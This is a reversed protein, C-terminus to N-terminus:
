VVTPLHDAYKQLLVVREPNRGKIDPIEVYDVVELINDPTDPLDVLEGCWMMSGLSIEQDIWVTAVVSITDIETDIQRSLGKEWRVDLEIPSSVTPEGNRDIGAKSWCVAKQHRAHFPM